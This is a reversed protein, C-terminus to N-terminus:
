HPIFYVECRRTFDAKKRDRESREERKRRKGNREELKKMKLWSSEMMNTRRTNEGTARRGRAKCSRTWGLKGGRM